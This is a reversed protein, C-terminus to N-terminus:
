VQAAAQQENSQEDTQSTKQEGTQWDLCDSFFEDVYSTDGERISRLVSEVSTSSFTIGEYRDM